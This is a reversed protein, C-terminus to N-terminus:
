ALQNQKVMATSPSHFIEDEMKEYMNIGTKLARIIDYESYPKLIYDDMGADFCMKKHKEMGYATVAVIYSRHSKEVEQERIIKTAQIGDLLPMQFDMFIFEYNNKKTLEICEIGNNAEDVDIGLNKLISLILIKNTEIDEVVLVKQNAFKERITKSEKSSPFDILVNELDILTFPSILFRCNDHKRFNDNRDKSDRIAILNYSVNLFNLKKSIAEAAYRNENFLISVHYEKKVEKTLSTLNKFTRVNKYGLDKLYRVIMNTSIEDQELIFVSRQNPYIERTCKESKELPIEVYFKAGSGFNSEVGIYGGMLVALKQCIYLGLGAGNKKLENCNDIQFFKNFIINKKDDPIGPGNDEVEFKVLIKKDCDNESTKVRIIITGGENSHIIANAVLNVLIQKIRGHDGFLWKIKNKIEYNLYINKKNLNISFFVVVDNILNIIDFHDNNLTLVGAEIKSLDLLDNIINVLVNGSNKIYDALTKQEPNIKTKLLLDCMGLICNMPTRIEHSMTALFESKAYNAMESSKKAQMLEHQTQELEVINQQLVAKSYELQKRWSRIRIMSIYAIITFIISIVFTFLFGNRLSISNKDLVYRFHSYISNSLGRMSKFYEEKVIEYNPSLLIEIAEKQSGNKVLQFLKKEMAEKNILFETANSMLKRDESMIFSLEKAASLNESLKKVLVDYEKEWKADGSMAAFYVIKLINRNLERIETRKQSIIFNKESSSKILEYNKWHTLHYFINILLFLFFIINIFFIPSDFIKSAFIFRKIRLM